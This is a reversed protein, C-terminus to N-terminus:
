GLLFPGRINTLALRSSRVQTFSLMTDFHVYYRAMLRGTDTPRLESTVEDLLVLGAGELANMEKMCMDTPIRMRNHTSFENQDMKSNSM